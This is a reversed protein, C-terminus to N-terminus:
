IIDAFRRERWRFYFAGSVLLLLSIAASVFVMPGPNTETGVLAWRFGEVAGVMPNLGYITRWPEDLLTSPYAIPTAFLWFQTMFPVLYRVDRYQVNLASLWLGVGLATAFTMLVFVPVLLARVPPVVDYYAMLGVLLISSLFLDVLASTVTGLPILLRPFYVKTILSASSILSNSAQVLAASFFTWLALGSYSFLPYPIGESPLKALHGFFVSFVVMAALPQLIAWAVGLATQKYRVKLDRWTLFFLLERYLWLEGFRINPWGRSRQVRVTATGLEPLIERRPHLADEAQVIV